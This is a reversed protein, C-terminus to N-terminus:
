LGKSMSFVARDGGVANNILTTNVFVGSVQWEVGFFERSASITFDTYNSEPEEETGIFTSYGAFAGLKVDWIVKDRWGAQFYFAQVDQGDWRPFFDTELTFGHWQGKLPFMWNNRDSDSWYTYYLAGLSVSAKDNFHYAYGGYLDLEMSEPLDVFHVNSGWVGLYIGTPHNYEFGGQIAPNHDTQSIGRLIYDSALTVNGSIAKGQDALDDDSTDDDEDTDDDCSDDGADCSDDDEDDDDQDVKPTPEPSKTPSPQSKAKAFAKSTHSFVSLSILILFILIQSLRSARM